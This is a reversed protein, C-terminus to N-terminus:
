VGIIFFKLKDLGFEWLGLKNSPINQETWWDNWAAENADLIYERIENPALDWVAWGTLILEPSTM